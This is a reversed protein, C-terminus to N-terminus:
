LCTEIVSCTSSAAAVAAFWSEALALEIIWLRGLDVAKLHDAAFWTAFWNGPPPEQTLRHSLQDSFCTAPVGEFCRRVEQWGTEASTAPVLLCSVLRQPTSTGHLQIVQLLLVDGWRDILDAGLPLGSMMRGTNLPGHWTGSRISAAVSDGWTRLRPHIKITSILRECGSILSLEAIAAPRHEVGPMRVPTPCRVPPLPAGPDQHSRDPATKGGAGGRGTPGIPGIPQAHRAASVSLKGPAPEDGASVRTGALPASASPEDRVGRRATM